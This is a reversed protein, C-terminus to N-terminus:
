CVSTGCVTSELCHVPAKKAVCFFLEGMGLRSLMPLGSASYLKLTEMQAAALLKRASEITYNRKQYEVYSKNQIKSIIHKNLIQLAGNRNPLTIIILGEPRLYSCITRIFEIDKEVYEIVSSCVLLDFSKKKLENNNIISVNDFSNFKKRAVARMRKSLDTGIILKSTEIFINILAGSGCGYDLVVSGSVCFENFLKEFEKYRMRFFRSQAYRQEWDDAMKDFYNEISQNTKKSDGM